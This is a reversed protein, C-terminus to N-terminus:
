ARSRSRGLVMGAGIVHALRLPEPYHGEVTTVALVARATAPECGVCQFLVGRSPGAHIPGARRIADMRRHAHSVHALAREIAALDPARRMVAIVGLSTAEALAPLDVVNFGGVAVGDLLVFRAQLALRHEAVLRAIARTAGLGDRVVRTSYVGEVHRAGRALVAVLPVVARPRRPFPADDLALVRTHANVTVARV